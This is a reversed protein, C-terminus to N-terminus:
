PFFAMAENRLRRNPDERLARALWEAAEPLHGARYALVAQAEAIHRGGVRAYRDLAQLRLEPDANGAHLALWGWYARQEIPAFGETLPSGVVANWRAKFLTRIVFFPAITRGKVVLTYRELMKPFGGLLADRDEAARDGRLAAALRGAAYARMAALARPGDQRELRKVASELEARRREVAEAEEGPGTEARGEAAMLRRVDLAAESQPVHRALQADSALVKRISPRDLMLSPPEEPPVPRPLAMWLGAFGSALVLMWLKGGSPSLHLRRGVTSMKVERWGM